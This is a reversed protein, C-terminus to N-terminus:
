RYEVVRRWVGAGVLLTVAVPLGLPVLDGWGTLEGDADRIATDFAQQNVDIVAVLANDYQAFDYNSNGPTTGIGFAIAGRLDGRAAMARIHRDDRQYQQFATLMREAAAREGPFTINHLEAGFYGGFGVDTHDARYDRLAADFRDDFDNVGADLLTVLSLTKDVFTREYQATRFPDVLYRSEDANADYGVSRAQSLAIISDFADAKAVKLDRAEASLATSGVVVTGGVLITALLIAPNLRRRLRARLFVQLGVLAVVLLGGTGWLWGRAETAGDHKDQYTQNLLDHNTTTLDRVERLIDRMLDTAERHRQLAATSPRGAPSNDRENLLTTQGALSEYCGLRDLIDAVKKDTPDGAAIRQLAATAETRRQQYLDLAERRNGAMAPEGGALLVNALQADMDSLAFYLGTTAAVQPAAERGIVRVGERVSSTVASVFAGLVVALVVCAGSLTIIWTPTEWRYSSLRRLGPEAAPRVLTTAM